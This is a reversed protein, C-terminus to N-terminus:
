FIMEVSIIRDFMFGPDGQRLWSLWIARRSGPREASL